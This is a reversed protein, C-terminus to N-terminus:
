KAQLLSAPVLAEVNQNFHVVLRGNEVAASEVQLTGMLSALSPDLTYIPERRAYDTLWVNLLERTRADLKGGAQAPRFDDVTPQDLFFGQRATDYRLASSLAVNGVPTPAGGATAMALDFSLNLRNGPPLKLQPHSVTLELLGGLADHTQPFSGGLYQQVDSAEVSVQSGKVSPAAFASPPLALACALVLAFPLRTNM